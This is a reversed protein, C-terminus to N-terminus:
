LRDPLSDRVRLFFASGGALVALAGVAVVPAALVVVVGRTGPREQLAAVAAAAGGVALMISAGVDAGLKGWSFVFAIVAAGFAFGWVLSRRGATAFAAGIGILGTAALTVELENGVGYFRAGLIPNPGLLSRATLSSGTALDAVESVISVAAALAIARPWPLLADFVLALTCTLVAILVGEMVPSPGLAGTLLLVAPLWLAAGLATRMTQRLPQRRTAAGAAAGLAAAGLLGLLLVSWRRPGVDALRDRLKELDDVSRDGRAEIRQGAVADPLQDEGIGFQHLVTPAIDTSVVLGDIRTSDSRLDNGGSLGVAGIALLRRPLSGPAQVVLLLDGPARAEVLKALAASGDRGGPIRAVLVGARRSLRVAEDGVARRDVLSVRPIRGARDAAVIAERNARGKMGVYAVGGFRAALEGLTGPVIDAPPTDAREVAKRWGSIAGGKAQPVLAMPTELEGEYLSTWVRAGSSIDLLTQEPTYSGQISSMFGLELGGASAFRDLATFDANPAPGPMLVIAAHKQALRATAADALPPNAAALTIALAAAM